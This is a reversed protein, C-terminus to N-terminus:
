FSVLKTDWVGLNSMPITASKGIETTKKAPYTAWYQDTERRGAIVVEYTQGTSGSTLLYNFNGNGLNNMNYPGSWTSSTTLKYYITVYKLPVSTGIDYDEAKISIGRQNPNIYAVSWNKFVSRDYQLSDTIYDRPNVSIRAGFGDVFPNNSNIEFHLHPAGPSGTDGTEATQDTQYVRIGEGTMLIKSLHLYLSYYTTGGNVYKILQYKTGNTFTGDKYLYTNEGGLTSVPTGTVARHDTGKHIEDTRPENYSSNVQNLTDEYYYFPSFLYPIGPSTEKAWDYAFVTTSLVLLLMLTFLFTTKIKKKMM